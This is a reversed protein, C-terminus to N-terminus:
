ASVSNNSITEPLGSDGIIWEALADANTTTVAIGANLNLTILQTYVYERVQLTSKLSDSKATQPLVASGVLDLLLTQMSTVDVNPGIIM